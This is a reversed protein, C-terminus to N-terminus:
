WIINQVPIHVCTQWKFEDFDMAYFEGSTGGTYIGPIGAECARKVTARNTKDAFKNNEDWAVPLGAWPGAFSERNLM